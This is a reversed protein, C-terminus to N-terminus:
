ASVQLYEGGKRKQSLVLPSRMEGSVNHGSPISESLLKGFWWTQLVASQGIHHMRLIIFSNSLDRSPQAPFRLPCFSATVRRPSALPKKQWGRPAIGQV